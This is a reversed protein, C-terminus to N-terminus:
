MLPGDIPHVAKEVLAHKRGLPSPKWREQYIESLRMLM